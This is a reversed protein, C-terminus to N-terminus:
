TEKPLIDRQGLDTQGRGGGRLLARVADPGVVGWAKRKRDYEGTLQRAGGTM